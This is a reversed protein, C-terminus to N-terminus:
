AYRTDTRGKTTWPSATKWASRSEAQKASSILRPLSARSPLLWERWQPFPQKSVGAAMARANGSGMVAMVEFVEIMGTVTGLLGVLPLLAVMTKIMGVGQNLDLTVESIM